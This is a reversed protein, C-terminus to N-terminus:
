FYATLVEVAHEVDSFSELVVDAGHERLHDAHFEGTAVAVCRIGNAKACDVDRPADGVIVTNEVAYRVHGLRDNFRRIALPPLHERDAHDSGFAGETFYNDLGVQALKHFAVARVNGTVLGLTIDQRLNLRQLLDSVGPLADTNTADVSAVVLRHVAHTFANWNQDIQELTLGLSPAIEHAISWDTRGSFSFHELTEQADRGYTVRFAEAFLRRGIRNRV